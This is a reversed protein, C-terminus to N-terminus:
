SPAVPRVRTASLHAGPEFSVTVGETLDQFWAERVDSRRFTYRKGDEGLLPGVGRSLQLQTITGM